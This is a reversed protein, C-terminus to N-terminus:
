QQEHADRCSSSEGDEFLFCINEPEVVESHSVCVRVCLENM